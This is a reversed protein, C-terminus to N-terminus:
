FSFCRVGAADLWVFALAPPEASTRKVLTTAVGAQRLSELLFDGFADAGLMGVFEANGGLAAVAVAVNAPAGGAHQEFRHPQLEPRGGVPQFDILVEGFCIVPKM